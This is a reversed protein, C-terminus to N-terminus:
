LLVQVLNLNFHFRSFSIIISLKQKTTNTKYERVALFFSPCKLKVVKKKNQTKCIKNRRKRQQRRRRDTRTIKKFSNFRTAVELHKTNTNRASSYIYDIHTHIHTAHAHKNTQKPQKINPKITNLQKNNMMRQKITQM